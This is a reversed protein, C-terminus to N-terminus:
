KQKHRRAPFNNDLAELIRRHAATFALKELKNTKFWAGAIQETRGPQICVRVAEVTIRYRTISHKFRCLPKLARVEAGLISAAASRLDTTGPATEGNPFEWLGANVMGPPRQRVLFAGEHEVVFAAVHREVPKNRKGLGPLEGIRGHRFAACRSCAPCVDCRPQRPTCLLAGLEMLSQNFVSCNGAAPIRTKVAPLLAAAQVLTEALHWLRTNVAREKPNGGIGFIRALVRVVNGDVIPAPLNFAISAVAGATYRGVGPLALIDEFRQPFLGGHRAVMIRAAKQLNRARNYYGLGEWLKLLRAEPMRALRPADPLTKMWREWYPVVTKVQTQQLMIESIWVAYPDQTRRWPLDRAEAAFWRMLDSALASAAAEATEPQPVPPPSTGTPATVNTM